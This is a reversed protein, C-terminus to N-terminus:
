GLFITENPRRFAALSFSVVIWTGIITICGDEPPSLLSFVRPITVVIQQEHYDSVSTARSGFVCLM